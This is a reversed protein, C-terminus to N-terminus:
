ANFPQARGILEELNPEDQHRPKGPHIIAVQCTEAAEVLERYSGADPDAIYARMDDDYAFMKNNIETCENCTTCRITEIWPDDSQTQPSADVPAEAVSGEAPSQAADAPAPSAAGQLAPTAGAPQVQDLPRALLLQKEQQWAQEAETLATAVHSNNIGALEQLGRWLDRCRRAADILRHDVVAKHLENNEDILLTCPLKDAAAASDMELFRAVPVMDDHWEGQPVCAFLGAHRLDCAAFDVLTIATDESL